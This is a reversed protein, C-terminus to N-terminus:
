IYQYLNDNVTKEINSRQSGSLGMGSLKINELTSFNKNGIEAL